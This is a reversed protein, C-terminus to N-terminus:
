PTFARNLSPNKILDCVTKEYSPQQAPFTKIVDFGRRANVKALSVDEVVHHTPGDATVRGSPSDISVQGSEIAKLVKKRDVSGAKNVAAAWLHWGNWESIALDTVYPHTKGYAGTFKQLFAANSPNDLEQYYNYSTVIGQAEAPSLIEQENGLGFSPSVIKIKKNLGKAAFERYFPVHNAGVLVSVVVDPSTRQINNLTAGFNGSDLSIFEKGVIQAGYKKAYKEIWQASIRGYNYDAAVIYMRKGLSGAAYSILPDLFQSATEGTIVENGDCVGGEYLSNYFYLTKLRRLAPRMAERSASTIGGQVVAVKKKTALLNAYEVNKQTSSQSDYQVLSLKRGLVGGHANIDDIALKTVKSKPVGYISLPGTLDLVSGVPIPGSTSAAGGAGGVCASLCLALAATAATQPLSKRM